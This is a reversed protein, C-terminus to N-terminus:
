SSQEIVPQPPTIDKATTLTLNLVPGTNVEGSMEVKDKFMGLHRMAMELLKVQDHVKVELGDRGSKAGAYLMKAGGTLKRTDKAHIEGTGEGQCEPCEPNPERVRMFGKGGRSEPPPWGLRSAEHTAREFEADTWQYMHDVGHCFRCCCRRYQVVDNVDAEIMDWLRKLVKEQTIGSEEQRKECLIALYEQVHPTNFATKAAASSAYGARQGAQTINVDLLYEEALARQKATCDKLIAVLSRPANEM